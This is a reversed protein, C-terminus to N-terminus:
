KGLSDEKDQSDIAERIKRDYRSKITETVWYAGTGAVSLGAMLPFAKKLTTEGFDKTKYYSKAMAQMSPDDATSAYQMAEAPSYLNEYGSKFEEYSIEGSALADILSNRREMISLEFDGSEIVEPAYINETLCTMAGAAGGCILSIVAGAGAIGAVITSAEQFRDIRDSKKELKKLYDCVEKKAM